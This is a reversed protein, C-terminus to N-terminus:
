HFIGYTKVTSLNDYTAITNEGDFVTDDGDGHVLVKGPGESHQVLAASEPPEPAKHHGGFGQHKHLM